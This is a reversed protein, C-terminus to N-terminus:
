FASMAEQMAEFRKIRRRAWAVFAAVVIVPVLTTISEKVLYIYYTKPNPVLTVQRSGQGPVRFTYEVSRYGPASIVIRYSGYPLRLDNDGLDLSYTMHFRNDLGTVVATARPHGLSASLTVRYRASGRVANVVVTRNSPHITYSHETYLGGGVVLRSGNVSVPLVLTSDCGPGVSAVPRGDLVVSVRSALCHNRSLPDIIKVRTPVRLVPFSANIVTPGRVTVTEEFVGRLRFGRMEDLPVARVSHDGLTVLATDGSVLKGDVYLRFRVPQAAEVRLPYLAPRPRLVVSAGPATVNVARAAPSLYPASFGECPSFVARVTAPGRYLTSLFVTQAPPKVLVTKEALVRGGALLEVRAEGCGPAGRPYAIQVTVPVPSRQIRIVAHAPGSVRLVGHYTVYDPGAVTVNYTLPYLSLAASGNVLATVVVGGRARLTVNVPELPGSGTYADIITLTVNYKRLPIEVTANLGGVGCLHRFVTPAHLGDLPSLRAVLEAGPLCPATLSHGTENGRWLTENGLVLRISADAEVRDGLGDSLVLSARTLEVASLGPVRAGPDSIVAVYKDGVGLLYGGVLGLGSLHIPLGSGGDGYLPEDLRAAYLRDSTSYYVYGGAGCAVSIVRTDAPLPWLGRVSGNSVGLVLLESSGGLYLTDGCLSASYSQEPYFWETTENGVRIVATYDGGFVGGSGSIVLWTQDGSRWAYLLRPSGYRAADLGLSALSVNGRSVDEYLFLLGHTAPCPVRALRTANVVLELSAPASNLVAVRGSWALFCSGNISLVLEAVYDGFPASFEAYGRDFSSGIVIPARLLAGLGTQHLVLYAAGSYPTTSNGRRLELSAQVKGPYVPEALLVFGQAGRVPTYGLVRLGSAGPVINGLRPRLEEWGTSGLRFIREYGQKTFVVVVSDNFVYLDQLGPVGAFFRGRPGVYLFGTSYYVITASGNGWAGLVGPPVSINFVTRPIPLPGNLSVLSVWDDGWLLVASGNVPYYGRAGNVKYLATVASGPVVLSALTAAAFLAAAVLVLRYTDM